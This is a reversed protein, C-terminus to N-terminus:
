GDTDPPATREAATRAEVIAVALSIGIDTIEAPLYTDREGHWMNMVTPSLRCLGHLLLGLERASLHPLQALGNGADPPDSELNLARRQRTLAEIELELRWATAEPFDPADAERAFSVEMALRDDDFARIEPRIYNM